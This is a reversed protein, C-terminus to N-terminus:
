FGFEDEFWEAFKKGIEVASGGFLFEPSEENEIDEIHAVHGGGSVDPPYYHVGLDYHAAVRSATGTGPSPRVAPPAISWDVEQGTFVISGAEVVVEVSEM